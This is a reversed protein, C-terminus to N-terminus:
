TLSRTQAEERLRRAYDQSNPIDKRTGILRAQKWYAVLDEGTQPMKKGVPRLYLLQVAYEPLSIGLQDAEVSLELELDQPIDIVLTM